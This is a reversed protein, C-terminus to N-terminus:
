VSLDNANTNASFINLLSWLKPHYLTERHYERSNEPFSTDFSLTLYLVATIEASAKCMIKLIKLSLTMIILIIGNYLKESTEM